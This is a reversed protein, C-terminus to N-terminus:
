EVPQPAEVPARYKLDKVTFVPNAPDKRDIIGRVKVKALEPVDALTKAVRGDETLMWVKADSAVKMVAEKGRFARVTKTGAKVKITITAATAPVAEPDAATQTVVTGVLNFKAKGHKWGGHGSAGAIALPVLTLALAAVVAILLLKKVEVVEKTRHTTMPTTVGQM